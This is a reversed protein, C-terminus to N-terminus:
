KGHLLIMAHLAWKGMMILGGNWGALVLLTERFLVAAWSEIIKYQFTGVFMASCGSDGLSHATSELALAQLSRDIKTKCIKCFFRAFNKAPNEFFPKNLTQSQFNRKGEERKKRIRLRLKLPLILGEGRGGLLLYCCKKHVLHVSHYDVLM